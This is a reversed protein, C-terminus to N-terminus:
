ANPINPPSRGCYEEHDVQDKLPKIDASPYADVSLKIIAARRDNSEPWISHLAFTGDSGTVETEKSTELLLKASLLKLRSVGGNLGCVLDELVNGLTIIGFPDVLQFKAILLHDCGLTIEEFTM